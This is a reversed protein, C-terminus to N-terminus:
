VEVCSNFWYCNEKCTTMGYRCEKIWANNENHHLDCKRPKLGNEKDKLCLNSNDTKYKCIGKYCNM